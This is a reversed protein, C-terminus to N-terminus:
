EGGIYPSLKRAARELLARDAKDQKKSVDIESAIFHSGQVVGGVVRVQWAKFAFIVVESGARDGVSFKGERMFKEPDLFEFGDEAYRKMWRMLRARRDADIKRYAKAVPKTMSVRYSRGECVFELEEM